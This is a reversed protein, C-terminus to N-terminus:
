KLQGKIDVPVANKGSLYAEGLAYQDGNVFTERLANGLRAPASMAQYAQVKQKHVDNNFDYSDYVQYQGTTPDVKYRFRGLTHAWGAPDQAFTNHGTREGYGSYGFAFDTPMKGQAAERLQQAQTGMLRARAQNKEILDKESPDLSKAYELTEYANKQLDAAEQLLVQKPRGFHAKKQEYNTKILDHLASLESESFNSTDIPSQTRGTMSKLLSEGYIRERMDVNNKYADILANVPAALPNTMPM